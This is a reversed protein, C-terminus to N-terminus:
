LLTGTLRKWTAMRSTPLLALETAMPLRNRALGGVAISGCRADNAPNSDEQYASDLACDDTKLENTWGVSLL